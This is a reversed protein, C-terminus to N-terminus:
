EIASRAKPNVDVAMKANTEVLGTTRDMNHSSSDLCGSKSLLKDSLAPRLTSFQSLKKSFAITPSSNTRLTTKNMRTLACREGVDGGM